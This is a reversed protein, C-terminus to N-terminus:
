ILNKYFTKTDDLEMARQVVKEKLIKNLRRRIQRTDGVSCKEKMYKRIYPKSVGYEGAGHTVAEIIHRELDRKEIKNEQKKRNKQKRISINVLGEVKHEYIALRMELQEVRAALDRSNEAVRFSGNEVSSSEDVDSQTDEVGSIDSITEIGPDMMDAKLNKPSGYYSPVDTVNCDLSNDMDFFDAM